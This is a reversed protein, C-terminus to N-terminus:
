VLCEKKGMKKECERNSVEEGAEPTCGWPILPGMLGKGAKHTLEVVPPGHPELRHWTAAGGTISKLWALVGVSFWLILSCISASTRCDRPEWGWRGKSGPRITSVRM